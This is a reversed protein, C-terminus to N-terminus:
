SVEKADILEKEKCVRSSMRAPPRRREIKYYLTPAFSFVAFTAVRLRVVYLLITLAFGSTPFFTASARRLFASFLLVAIVVNGRHHFVRWNREFFCVDKSVVYLLGEGGLHPTAYFNDTCVFVLIRFFTSLFDLHPVYVYSSSGGAWRSFQISM